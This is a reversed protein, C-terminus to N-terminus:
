PKARSERSANASLMAATYLRARAAGTYHIRACVVIEPFTSVIMVTTKASGSLIEGRMFPLCLSSSCLSCRSRSLVAFCNLALMFLLRNDPRGEKSLSPEAALDLTTPFGERDDRRLSSESIEAFEGFSLCPCSLRTFCTVAHNFCSFVLLAARLDFRFAVPGSLERSAACESCGEVSSVAACEDWAVADLLPESDDSPETANSCRALMSSLVRERLDV